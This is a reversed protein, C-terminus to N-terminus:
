TVQAWYEASPMTNDENVGKIANTHFNKEKYFTAGFTSPTSTKTPTKSSNLGSSGSKKGHINNSVVIGDSKKTTQTSNDEINNSPVFEQCCVCTGCGPYNKNKGNTYIRKLEPKSECVLKEAIENRIKTRDRGSLQDM